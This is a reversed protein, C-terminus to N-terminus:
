RLEVDMLEQMVRLKQKQIRVLNAQAEELNAQAGEISRAAKIITATEKSGQETLNGWEVRLEEKREESATFAPTKEETAAKM